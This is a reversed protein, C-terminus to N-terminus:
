AAELFAECTERSPSGTEASACVVMVSERIQGLESQYDGEEAWTQLRGELRLLHAKPRQYFGSGQQLEAILSVTTEQIRSTDAPAMELLGVLYYYGWQFRTAPGQAVDHAEKLWDIAADYNEARQEIDALTAM